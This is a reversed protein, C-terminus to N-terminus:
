NRRVKCGSMTDDGTLAVIQLTIKNGEMERDIKRITRIQGSTQDVAFLGREKGRESDCGVIYFRANEDTVGLSVTGVLTGPLSNEKVTSRYLETTFSPGPKERGPVVVITTTVSRRVSPVADDSVIVPIRIIDPNETDRSLIIQGTNQLFFCLM